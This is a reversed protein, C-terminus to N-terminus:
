QLILKIPTPTFFRIPHKREKGEKSVKLTFTDKLNKDNFTIPFSAHGEKDTYTEFIRKNAKDFIEIRAREVFAPTPELTLIDVPFEYTVKSRAFFLPRFDDSDFGQSFWSGKLRFDSDKIEGSNKWIANKFEIEGQFNEVALNNIESNQVEVKAKKRPMLWLGKSNTFHNEGGEMDFGWQAMVKSNKIAISKYWFAAPAALALNEFSLNEDKAMLVIRNLVSDLVDVSSSSASAIISVGRENDGELYDGLIESNQLTINYEINKTRFDKKVNFDSFKGAKFDMVTLEGHEPVLLTLGGITSNKIYVNAEDSVEIGGGRFDPSYFAFISDIIDVKSNGAAIIKNVGQSNDLTLHGNQSVNITLGRGNHLAPKVTSHLFTLEANDKVVIHTRQKQGQSMIVASNKFILKGTGEVVIDAAGLFETDELIETTSRVVFDSDAIKRKVTERKGWQDLPIFERQVFAEEGFTKRADKTAVYHKGKRAVFFGAGALVVILLFILIRKPFM